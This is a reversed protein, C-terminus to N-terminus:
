SWPRPTPRAPVVAGRRLALQVFEDPMDLNFRLWFALWWALLVLALDVAVALLMRRSWRM